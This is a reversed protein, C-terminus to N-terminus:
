NNKITSPINQTQNQAFHFEFSLQALNKTSDYVVVECPKVVIPQWENDSFFFSHQGAIAIALKEAKDKNILASTAVFTQKKDTINSRLLNQITVIEGSFSSNLSLKDAVFVSM